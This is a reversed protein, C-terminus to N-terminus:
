CSIGGKAISGFKNRYISYLKGKSRYFDKLAHNDYPLFMFIWNLNDNEKTVVFDFLCSYPGNTQGQNLIEYQAYYAETATTETHPLM